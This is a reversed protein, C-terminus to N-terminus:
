HPHSPSTSNQAFLRLNYDVLIVGALTLWGTWESSFSVEKLIWIWINTNNLCSTLLHIILTDFGFPLGGCFHSFGLTPWFVDFWLRCLIYHNSLNWLLHNEMLQKHPSFDPCSCTHTHTIDSTMSSHLQPNGRGFPLFLDWARTVIHIVRYSHKM